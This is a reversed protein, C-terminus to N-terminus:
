TLLVVSRLQVLQPSRLSISPPKNKTSGSRAPLAVFHFVRSIQPKSSDTALVPKEDGKSATAAPPVADRDVCNEFHQNALSAAALVARPGPDTRDASPHQESGSIKFEIASHDSGSVCWVLPLATGVAFVAVLFIALSKNLLQQM